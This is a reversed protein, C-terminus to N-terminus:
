PHIRAAWGGGEALRLTVKSRRDVRGTVKKYDSAIRDANIGDQYSDMRYSGEPLFSLDIALERPTWNTMAGLYWDQGNRRAIVVYQAIRADLVRTEDWVTPVQGLFEMADPERMYNSPSDALMQLPSEFVVYMALQHCRTGLAMPRNFIPAFTSRTANLM